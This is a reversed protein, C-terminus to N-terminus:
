CFIVVSQVGWLTDKQQGNAILKYRKYPSMKMLYSIAEFGINVTVGQEPFSVCSPLLRCEVHVQEPRHREQTESMGRIRDTAPRCPNRRYQM